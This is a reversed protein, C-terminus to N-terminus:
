KDRMISEPIKTDGGRLMPTCVPNNNYDGVGASSPMKM